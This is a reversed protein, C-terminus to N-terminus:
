LNGGPAPTARFTEDGAILPHIFRISTYPIVIEGMDRSKGSAFHIRAKHPELWISKDDPLDHIFGISLGVTPRMNWKSCWMDWPARTITRPSYWEVMVMDGDNFASRLAAITAPAMEPAELNFRRPAVNEVLNKTQKNDSM